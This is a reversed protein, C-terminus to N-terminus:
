WIVTLFVFLDMNSHYLLESLCLLANSSNCYINVRVKQSKSITLYPLYCFSEGWKRDVQFKRNLNPNTLSHVRPKQVLRIPQHFTCAFASPLVHLSYILNICLFKTIKIINKHIRACLTHKAWVLCLGKRYYRGIEQVSDILFLFFLTINLMYYPCRKNQTLV